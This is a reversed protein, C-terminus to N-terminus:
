SPEIWGQDRAWETAAEEFSDGSFICQEILTEQFTKAYDKYLNKPISRLIEDVKAILNGLTPYKVWETETQEPELSRIIVEGSGGTADRSDCRFVEANMKKTM